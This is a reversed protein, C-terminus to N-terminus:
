TTLLNGANLTIPLNMVTNVLDWWWDSDQLLQIWDVDEFVTGKKKLKLQAGRWSPTNPYHLYPEV